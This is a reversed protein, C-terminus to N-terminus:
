LAIRMKGEGLRNLINHGNGTLHIREAGIGSGGSKDGAKDILLM